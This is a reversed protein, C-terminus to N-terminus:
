QATNVVITKQIHGFTTDAAVTITGQKGVGLDAAHPAVASVVSAAGNADTTRVQIDPPVGALTVTFTLAQSAIPAGDPDTLVATFTLNAGKASSFTYLTSTLSVTLKGSGRVLTLSATTVNSAPDTVTLTVVNSGPTIAVTVTFNGAGDATTSVSTHNNANQALVSSAAQTKGVIAISTGNVTTGNQPSVITVKPKATDLVYTVPGSAASEGGPGVITATFVNSGKSLTVGAITFTATAPIAIQARVLAPKKGQLTDYLSITYGTSGLITLPVTGSVNVTPTNTYSNSPAVLTPAGAIPGASPAASPSPGSSALINSMASGLGGVLKGIQGTAGYLIVGGLAVVAVALLLRAVLPLGSGREVRKHPSVRYPSSGRPVAKPSSPRGTSPPRPRVQSPRSSRRDSM